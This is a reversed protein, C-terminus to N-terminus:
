EQEEKNVIASFVVKGNPKQEKWIIRVPGKDLETRLKNPNKTIESISIEIM